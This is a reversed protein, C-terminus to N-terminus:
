AEFALREITKLLAQTVQSLRPYDVKEPTDEATHYYPYRFPATDTVMLAQYGNQWFSWHDSWGVGPLAEMFAGKEFPITAAEAFGKAVQNLLPASSRNAVLGIFNGRDPYVLNLPFPYKQSDKADSFYGMTELSMMGEIRERKAKAQKAYVLSGMHEGQFYPPEENVFAVLRLTKRPRMTALESALALLSAVGSGNDNAGPCGRVSDYHAGIVFIQEPHSQGRWEVELNAVERGNVQMIHRHVPQGSRELRQIIYREAEKLAEHCVVNREGITGAIHAVDQRLSQELSIQTM